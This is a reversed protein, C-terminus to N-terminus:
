ASKLLQQYLKILKATQTQANFYGSLVQSNRGFRQRLADDNLLRLTKDALDSASADFKYGNYGDRTLESIQDDVFIIPLGFNCAENIVLGQTDTTSPFIFLESTQYVRMLRARDLMGTFIVQQGLGLALAKKKLRPQYPGDGVVLLKLAPQSALIKPMASVLIDLNKESGIRGVSLVLREAPKIGYFERPDFDTKLNMEAPDLGTPLVVVSSTTGYDELLNFIKKSPAIVLDCYNNFITLIKRVVKKNWHAISLSPKIAPLTERLLSSDRVIAPGILSGAVFGAIIRKYIKVYQEIDTHYTNVLPLNLEKAIRYGLLGIQAPTHIHVIDLELGKIRRVNRTTWPMTDRYNEYWISPFSAFRIIRPSEGTIKKPGAPCFLYVEHGLKELEQRFSEISIAVGDISPFYRDSFFGIRM